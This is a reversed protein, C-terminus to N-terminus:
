SIGETGIGLIHSKFLHGYATYILSARRITKSYVFGVHIKYRETENM